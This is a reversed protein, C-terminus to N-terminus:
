KSSREPSRGRDNADRNADFDNDVDMDRAGMQGDQKLLDKEQMTGKNRQRDGQQQQQGPMSDNRSGSPKGKNKM